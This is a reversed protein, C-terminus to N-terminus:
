ETPQCNPCLYLVREMAPDGQETQRIATGCRRCGKGRRGYVYYEQGAQRWGTTSRQYTNCNAKLLRAADLLVGPLDDVREIAAWPSLRHLFLLECKYVNGIGAVLRQDLLAEGIPRRPQEAFRRVAEDLDFAPDLLDPGLHGVVEAEEATPLLALDHVRIGAATTDATGVIARIAHQPGFRRLGDAAPAVRWAGDMRLHSHLTRGGSLRLLIHKGVPVVETVTEGHADALALAPVRLDFLTVVQGALERHMRQATLFVTDGEPM